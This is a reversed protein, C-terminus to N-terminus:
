FPVIQQAYCLPETRPSAEGFRAAFRRTRQEIEVAICALVIHNEATDQSEDSTRRASSRRRHTIVVASRLLEPRDLDFTAKGPGGGAAHQDLRSAGDHETRGADFRTNSACGALLEVYAPDMEEFLPVGSIVSALSKM